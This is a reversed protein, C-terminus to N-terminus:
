NFGTEKFAVKRLLLPELLCSIEKDKPRWLLPPAASIGFLEASADETWPCTDASVSIDSSKWWCETVAWSFRRICCHIYAFKVPIWYIQLNNDKRMQFICKMYKLNGSNTHYAALTMKCKKDCPKWDPMKQSCPIYFSPCHTGRKRLNRKTRPICCLQLSTGM